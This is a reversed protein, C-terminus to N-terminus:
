TWRELVFAGGEALIRRGKGEDRPEFPAEYPVPTSVAIGRDLHLERPRGYDYLRYTLDVNQQIEILSLGGGIAHITGAPSYFSDGAKVPRWDVLQEISGDLAAARLADRSLERKLGLGIVAGPEADLVLWAEDKGHPYGEARARADDPHVQISLRETTFLYKVLLADRACNEFWIEGVPGGGNVCDGFCDPLEHRGWVRERPKRGLRTATM